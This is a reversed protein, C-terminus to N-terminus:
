VRERPKSKHQAQQEDQAQRLSVYAKPRCKSLSLAVSLWRDSAEFPRAPPSGQGQWGMQFAGM